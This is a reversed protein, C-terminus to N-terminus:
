TFRARMEELLMGALPGMTRGKRWVVYLPCELPPSLPRFCLGSGPRTDVLGDFTVMYGVGERVMVAGNYSLNFTAVPEMDAHGEWRPYDADMAQRSLILPLGELDERTVTGRSALPSDDKMVVGYVDTHPIRLGDYRQLDAEEALVAFDLFGGDLRASLDETNGSYLHLRVGPNRAELSKFCAAVPAMGESEACGIRIDGGAEMSRIEEATRDMMGVIDEARRRLLVGEDTLRVSYNSRVLLKRGLETELDKIQKSLTPQSVGLSTAAKTLSELRAVELFNRLVKVDM